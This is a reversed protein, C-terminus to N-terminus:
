EVRTQGIVDMERKLTMRDLKELPLSSFVSVRNRIQHFIKRFAARKDEDTGAAAAPDEFGWHASIPQGPWVPCVEGAAKDCVTIVFDM